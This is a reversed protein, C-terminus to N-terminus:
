KKLYPLAYSLSFMPAEFVASSLSDVLAPRVGEILHGIFQLVWGGTFVIFSNRLWHPDTKQWYNSLNSLVILYFMMTFYVSWSIRLYYFNYVLMMFSKTDWEFNYGYKSKCTSFYINNLFNMSTLIIMPICLFHISQNVPHQHYLEYNSM